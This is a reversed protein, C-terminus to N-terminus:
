SLRLVGAHQLDGESWHKTFIETAPPKESTAPTVVSRAATLGLGRLVGEVLRPDAEHAISWSEFRLRRNLYSLENVENEENGWAQCKIPFM